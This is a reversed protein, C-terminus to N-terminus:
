RMEEGRREYSLFNVFRGALGFGTRACLSLAHHTDTPLSSVFSFHHVCSPSSPAPRAGGSGFRDTTSSDDAGRELQSFSSFDRRSLQLEISFKKSRLARNIPLLSCESCANM